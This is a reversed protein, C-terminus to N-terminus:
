VFCMGLSCQRVVTATEPEDLEAQALPVKTHHLYVANFKDAARLEEDLRIAEAWRDPYHDRINRWEANKKNPCMWCSSHHPQPLGAARIVALCADTNMMLDVLPCVTTWKGKTVNHHRQWRRTEDFALGLWRTGSKIGKSRLYRDVVSRKWEGSCWATLKGTSTYAPILLTGNHSVLDVTSLERPAIEVTLDHEALFPRIHQELYEWTSPNERGTDAMVIIDPRPLVGKAIMVCMAVTQRGGGYNFVTAM